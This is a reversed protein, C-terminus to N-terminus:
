KWLTGAGTAQKRIKTEIESAYFILASKVEDSSSKEATTRLSEAISLMGTVVGYKYIMSAAEGEM